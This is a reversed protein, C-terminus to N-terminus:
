VIEGTWGEDEEWEDVLFSSPERASETPKRSQKMRGREGGLQLRSRARTPVSCRHCKECGAPRNRRAKKEKRADEISESAM